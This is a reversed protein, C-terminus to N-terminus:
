SSPDAPLSSTFSKLNAPGFLIAALLYLHSPIMASKLLPSIAGMGFKRSFLFDTHSVTLFTLISSENGPSSVIVLTRDLNGSTQTTSTFGFRASDDM